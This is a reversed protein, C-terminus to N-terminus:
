RMGTPLGSMTDYVPRKVKPRGRSSLWSSDDYASSVSPTSFRGENGHNENRYTAAQSAQRMQAEAIAARASSEMGIATGGYGAQSM